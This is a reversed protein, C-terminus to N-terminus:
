TGTSKAKTQGNRKTRKNRFEQVWADPLEPGICAPIEMDAAWDMYTTDSGPYIPNNRMFMLRFDIKNGILLAQIRRKEKATLRGKGEIYVNDVKFDPTYVSNQIVLASGCEACEVRPVLTKIKLTDQEYKFPIKKTSLFEAIRKEFGSRYPYNKGQKVWKAM